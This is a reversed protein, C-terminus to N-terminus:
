SPVPTRCIIDVLETCVSGGDTAASDVAELINGGRDALRKSCGMKLGLWVIDYVSEAMRFTVM